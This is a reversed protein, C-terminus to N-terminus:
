TESFEFLLFQDHFIAVVTSQGVHDDTWARDESGALSVQTTSDTNISEAKENLNRARIKERQGVNNVARLCDNQSPEFRTYVPLYKVDHIIFQEGTALEQPRVLLLYFLKGHM